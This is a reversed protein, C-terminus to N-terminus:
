YVKQIKLHSKKPNEDICFSYIDQFKEWFPHISNRGFDLLESPTPTIDLFLLSIM